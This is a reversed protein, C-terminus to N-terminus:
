QGFVVCSGITMYSVTALAGVMKPINYKLNYFFLLINEGIFGYVVAQAGLAPTIHSATTTPVPTTTSCETSHLDLILKGKLPSPNGCVLSGADEVAERRSELLMTLQCSCEWPNGHLQMKQVSEPVAALTMLQNGYLNLKTLSHFPEFADSAIFVLKNNSLDLEYLAGLGCFTDTSIYQILNRSANLIKLLRLTAFIHPPLYSIKNSQVNLTHLSALDSFWPAKLVDLDNQFLNLATLNSLGMFASSEVNCSSLNNGTLELLQLSSQGGVSGYFAQSSLSLRFETISMYHLNSFNQLARPGIRAVQALGQGQLLITQM